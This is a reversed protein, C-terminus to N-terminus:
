VRLGTARQLHLGGGAELEELALQAESHGQAAARQLWSRAEFRAVM